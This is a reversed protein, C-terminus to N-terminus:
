QTTGYEHFAAATIRALAGLADAFVFLTSATTPKRPSSM